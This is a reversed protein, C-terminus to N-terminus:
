PGTVRASSTGFFAYANARVPGIRYRVSDAETTLRKKRHGPAPHM